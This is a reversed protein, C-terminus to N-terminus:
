EKKLSCPARPRSGLPAGRKMGVYKAPRAARRERRGEENDGADEPRKQTTTSTGWVAVTNTPGSLAGSKGYVHRHRRHGACTQYQRPVLRGRGVRIISGGGAKRAHRAPCSLLSPLRLGFSSCISATRPSLLTTQSNPFDLQTPPCRNAKSVTFSDFLVPCVALELM